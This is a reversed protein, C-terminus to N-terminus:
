TAAFGRRYRSSRKVSRWFEGRIYIYCTHARMAFGAILCGELLRHPDWRLIERDKCTRAPSM